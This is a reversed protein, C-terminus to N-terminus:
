TRASIASSSRKGTGPKLDDDKVTLSVPIGGLKGDEEAIALKFADRVDEGLYGGPGSLTTVM